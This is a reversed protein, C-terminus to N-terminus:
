GKGFVQKVADEFPWKTWRARAIERLRAQTLDEQTEADILRGSLVYRASDDVYFMREQIFVEWLGPVPTARVSEAELGTNKLLNDKVTGIDAAGVTGSAIGLVCCASLLLTKIQM